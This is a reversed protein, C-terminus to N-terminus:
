FIFLDYYCLPFFRIFDRFCRLRQPLFLVDKCQEVYKPGYAERVDQPLRDWLARLNEEMLDHRTVATQFFGPELISVKIGFHSMEM